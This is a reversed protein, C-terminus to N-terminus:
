IFFGCQRTAAKSAKSPMDPLAHQVEAIRPFPPPPAELDSVLGQAQAAAGAHQGTHTRQAARAADLAGAELVASRSLASAANLCRLAGLALEACAGQAGHTVLLAVLLPAAGQAAAAAANGPLTAMGWLAGACSEAVRRDDPHQRLAALASEVCGAQLCSACIDPQAALNRLAGAGLFQVQASHPAGRHARMATAVAAAVRANAAGMPAWLQPVATLNAVAGCGHEAVGAHSPHAALAAACTAIAGCRVAADRARPALALTRLSGCCAEQCGALGTAGGMGDVLAVIAADSVAEAGGPRLVLALVARSAGEAVGPHEPQTALARCLADAAFCVDESSLECTAGHAGDLSDASEPSGAQAPPAGERLALTALADVTSASLADASAGVPAAQAPPPLRLIAFLAWCSQELAERERLGQAACMGQALARVAGAGAAAAAASPQDACLANLAAAAAERVGPSAGAHTSLAGAMAQPAGARLCAVRGPADGALRRLALAAHEAVDADAPRLRLACLLADVAGSAVCRARCAPSLALRRLAACASLLAQRRPQPADDPELAARLCQLVAECCGSEAAVGAEEARGCLARIAACAAAQLPWHRPHAQACAVALPLAGAAAAADAASSCAVLAALAACAAALAHPAHEGDLQSPQSFRQLAELCLAVGGADCARQRARAEGGLCALVAAAAAAIRPDGPHARCAAVVAEAGWGEACAARGGDSCGALAGLARAGGLALGADGAHARLASVCAAAAAAAAPPPQGPASAEGASALPPAMACLAAVGRLQVGLASAHTRMATAVVTAAAVTEPAQAADGASAGGGCLAALCRVGASAAEPARAHAFIGDCVLRLCGEDLLAKRQGSAKDANSDAALQASIADCEASFAAQDKFALRLPRTANPALMLPPPPPEAPSAQQQRPPAQQRAQSAQSGAAAAPAGGEEELLVRAAFLDRQPLAAAVQRQIEAVAASAEIRSLADAVSAAPTGRLFDTVRESLPPADEATVEAYSAMTAEAASVAVVAAVGAAEAAFAAFAAIRSAAAAEPGSRQATPPAVQPPPPAPPAAKGSLLAEMRQAVAEASPRARAEQAWCRETTEWFADPAGEPRAPRKGRVVLGVIQAPTKGAWPAALAALEFLVCGLAYVDSVAGHQGEDWLEPAMWAPSGGPARSSRTAAADARSAAFGFDALKATLHVGRPATPLADFLLVNAGKLDRHACGRAHLCALGRAADVALSVRGPWDLPCASSALLKDLAGRPALEFLLALRPGQFSWGLLQVLQPHPGLEALACAEVRLSALQGASLAAAPAHLLKLACAAGRFSARFVRGFGGSGLLSGPQAEDFTVDCSLDLERAAEPAAASTPSSPQASLVAPAAAAALPHSEAAARKPAREAGRPQEQAAALGLSVEHLTQPQACAYALVEQLEAGLSEKVQAEARACAAAVAARTAELDADAHRAAQPADFAFSKNENGPILMRLHSSLRRQASSLAEARAQHSALRTLLLPLPTAACREAVDAEKAVDLLAAAARLEAELAALVSSRVAAEPATCPPQHAPPFILTLIRSCTQNSPCRVRLSALPAEAARVLAALADVQLGCAGGPSVAQAAAQAALLALALSPAPSADEAGSMM